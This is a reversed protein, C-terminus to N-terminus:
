HEDEDRARSYTIVWKRAGGDSFFFTQLLERNYQTDEVTMKIIPDGGTTFM